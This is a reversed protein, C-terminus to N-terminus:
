EKDTEYLVIVLVDSPAFNGRTLSAAHQVQPASQPTMNGQISVVAVGSHVIWTNIENELTSLDNEIGRFLKVKRM